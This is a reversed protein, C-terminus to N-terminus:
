KEYLALITEVNAGAERSTDSAEIAKASLGGRLSNSFSSRRPKKEGKPLELPKKIVDLQEITIEAPADDGTATAEKSFEIQDEFTDIKFHYTYDNSLVQM